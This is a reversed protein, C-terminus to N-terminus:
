SIQDPRLAHSANLLREYPIAADRAVRQVSGPPGEFLILVVEDDLVLLWGLYRVPPEHGGLTAAVAADIREELDRLDQERVGAWFCEAIYRTREADAM